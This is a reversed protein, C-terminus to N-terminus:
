LARVDWDLEWRRVTGDTRASLAFRADTSIVVANVEGNHGDLVPLCRGTAPAWIRVGADSGGSTAFWGDPSFRVQKPQVKPV